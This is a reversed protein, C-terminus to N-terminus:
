GFTNGEMTDNTIKWYCFLYELIGKWHFTLAHSQAATDWRGAADDNMRRLLNKKRERGGSPFLDKLSQSHHTMHSTPWFLQNLVEAGGWCTGPSTVWSLLCSLLSLSLSSSITRSLWLVHSQYGTSYAYLWYKCKRDYLFHFSILHLTKSM